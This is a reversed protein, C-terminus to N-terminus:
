HTDKKKLRLHVDEASVAVKKNYTGDHHKIARSVGIHSSIFRICKITPPKQNIEWTNPPFSSVLGPFYILSVIFHHPLM